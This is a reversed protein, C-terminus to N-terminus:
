FKKCVFISDLVSSEQDFKIFGSNQCAGNNWLHEFQSPM